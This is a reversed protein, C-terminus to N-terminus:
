TPCADGAGSSTRAEPEVCSGSDGPVQKGGSVRECYPRGANRRLSEQAFARNPYYLNYRNAMLVRGPFGPTPEVSM